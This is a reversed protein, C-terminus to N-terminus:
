ASATLDVVAAQQEPELEAILEASDAPHLTRLYNVAGDLDAGDLFPQLRELADNLEIPDVM